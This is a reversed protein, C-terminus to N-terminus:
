NQEGNESKKVEEEKEKQKCQECVIRKFGGTPVPVSHCSCVNIFLSSFSKM